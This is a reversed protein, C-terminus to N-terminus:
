LTIERRLIAALKRSAGGIISQHSGQLLVKGRMEQAIDNQPSCHDFRVRFLSDRPLINGTSDKYTALPGGYLSALYLSDLAAINIRDIGNVTCHYANLEPVDGVFTASTGTKIRSLDAEDVFAEGKIGESGIVNFLREGAKLWIGNKLDPDIDTIQGDFPARLTLQDHQAKLGQLAQQAAEWHSRLASGAQNLQETLPQQDAQWHLSAEVVTASQLQYDLEPSNLQALVDGAHVTQGEHVKLESLQSAHAAYIGQAKARSLVAPSSLSHRWPILLVAMLVTFVIATRTSQRNWHLQLRQQWWAHLERAIPLAIFWGIEVLMLVIGLARFFFNFVLLAISFFLVFRYLWAALSFLILFRKREPAFVEPPPANFGFLHERLWWRTLAFAREHLNPVNLWDSLLYYGDFRTFPSANLVLTIIWTSTALLFVGARLPGDPLINWLLTSYAALALEALMGAAGIHLRERRSRLKWAENTDTYLVPWMVLLAFGMTPVHCGYRYATLAHGFEHLIKAFSLAVAIGLLGQWGAYQRFTHIFEEWQRSALYLGLLAVGITMRWFWPRYLWQVKPSLWKLLPMPRFLPIRIFLYHKLLWMAPSLQQQARTHLLRQTDAASGANVLQHAILFQVIGLVDDSTIQLTTDHRVADAIAQPSGLPWRSLIEFAAWGLQYFRHAAPDYLTWVPSGDAGTPSAALTLEQRLPPLTQM